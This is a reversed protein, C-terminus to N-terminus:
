TRKRMPPQTFVSIVPKKFAVKLLCIDGPEVCFHKFIGLVRRRNPHVCYVHYVGRAYICNVNVM